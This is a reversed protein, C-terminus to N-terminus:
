ASTWGCKIPCGSYGSRPFSICRICLLPGHLYPIFITGTQPSSFASRNAQLCYKMDRKRRKRLAKQFNFPDHLNRFSGTTAGASVPPLITLHPQSPDVYTMAATVIFLSWSMEFAGGSRSRSRLSIPRGDFLVIWLRFASALAGNSFRPLFFSAGSVLLSLSELSFPTSNLSTTCFPPSSSILPDRPPVELHVFRRRSFFFRFESSL